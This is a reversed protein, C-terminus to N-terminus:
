SVKYARLSPPAHPASFPVLLRRRQGPKCDARGCLGRFQPLKAPGVGPLDISVASGLGIREGCEAMFGTESIDCLRVALNRLGDSRVNAVLSCSIRDATRPKTDGDVLFQAANSFDM